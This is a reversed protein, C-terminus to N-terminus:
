EATGGYEAPVLEPLGCENILVDAVQAKLKPPVDSFEWPKGTKPNKAEMCIKSAYLMAMMEQDGELLFYLNLALGAWFERM